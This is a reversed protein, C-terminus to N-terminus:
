NLDDPITIGLVEATDSNVTLECDKTYFEVPLEAINQGEFLVRFAMDATQRGLQKYNIGFTALFGKDVMSAEGAVTPIKAANLVQAVTAASASILNDTPIYVADVKGVMSQAVAAVESSDAATFDLVSIGKAELEKRAMAEQTVSNPEASCYIIGVTKAGPVLKLLLDIQQAVPNMDSTGSVNGGPVENTKVLGAAQADTVATFIIPVEATASAAASAAPTAIAMIMDVGSNVFTTAITACVSQEGQANELQHEWKVGKEACLEDMREIFGAAADDLAGFEALQIIGVKKADDEPKQGGDCAALSLALAAILLTSILKKM